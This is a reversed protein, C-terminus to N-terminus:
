GAPAETDLVELGRVRLRELLDAALPTQEDKVFESLVKTRQREEMANIYSVVRDVDGQTYIEELVTKADKPKMGQISLLSKQFQEDGEAEALEVRMERFEEREQQFQSRERNLLERELMLTRKLDEVERALREIRLNDIESAEVRLQLLRESSVAPGAPIAEAAAAAEEAAAAAEERRIRNAEDTVTEQFLVRVQQIRDESLRDTVGLWAVFGGIALLNIAAVVGLTALLSKM